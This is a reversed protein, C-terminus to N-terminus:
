PPLCQVGFTAPVMIPLLSLIVGAITVGLARQDKFATVVLGLFGLTGVLLGAASAINEIPRMLLCGYGPTAGWLLFALQDIGFAVLLPVLICAAVICIIRAPSM